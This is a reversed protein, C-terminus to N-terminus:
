ALDPPIRPKIRYLQWLINRPPRIIGTKILHNFEPLAIGRQDCSAARDQDAEWL